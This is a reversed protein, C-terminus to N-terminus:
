RPETNDRLWAALVAEELEGAALAVIIRVVEPQPAILRHGNVGLFVYGAMFGSRKNGDVFPHNQIIGAIYAAALEFLDPDGYAALNRPRALASNLLNEDRIAAAGGHEALLREHLAIVDGYTLWEPESM